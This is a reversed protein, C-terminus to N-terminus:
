FKVFGKEQPNFWYFTMIPEPLSKAGTWHWAMIQVLTSSARHGQIIDRPWLSIIHCKIYYPQLSINLYENYERTHGWSIYGNNMSTDIFSFVNENSWTRVWIWIRRTSYINCGSWIARYYLLKFVTCFFENAWPFQWLLKVSNFGRIETADFGLLQKKNWRATTNAKDM